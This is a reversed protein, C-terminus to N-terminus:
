TESVGGFLLYSTLEDSLSSARSRLGSDLLAAFRRFCIRFGEDTKPTLLAASAGIARWFVLPVTAFHKRWISCPLDFLGRLEDLLRAGSRGM